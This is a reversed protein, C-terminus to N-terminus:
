FRLPLREYTKCAGGQKSYYNLRYQITIIASPASTAWNSRKYLQRDKEMSFDFISYLKKSAWRTLYLLRWLSVKTPLEIGLVHKIVARCYCECANRLFYATLPKFHRKTTQYRGALAFFENASIYYQKGSACMPVEGAIPNGVDKRHSVSVNDHILLGNHLAAVAFTSSNKVLQEFYTERM